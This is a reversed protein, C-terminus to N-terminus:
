DTKDENSDYVNADNDSKRSGRDVKKEYIKYIYKENDILLSGGNVGKINKANFPREKDDVVDVIELSVYEGPFVKKFSNECQIESFHFFIDKENFRSSLDYIRIFGFGKKQDFWLINGIHTEDGM